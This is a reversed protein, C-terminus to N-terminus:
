GAQNGPPALRATPTQLYAVSCFRVRGAHASSHVDGSGVVFRPTIVTQYRECGHAIGGQMYTLLTTAETAIM